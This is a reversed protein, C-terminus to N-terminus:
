KNHISLFKDIDVFLDLNALIKEYDWNWWKIRLLAEKQRENFRYGINKAPIGGVISFPEVDKTVVANSLVVAGDGITVGGIITSNYGIWCDNGIVVDYMKEAYKIEPFLSQPLVSFGLQKKNSVFFPSTSVYPPKYPHIGTVINVRAAISTFRGIKTYGNMVCDRGIYSCMGLYGGWKSHMYVKNRGEFFSNILIDSTPSIVVNNNRYKFCLFLYKIYCKIM